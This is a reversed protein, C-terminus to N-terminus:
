GQPSSLRLVVDLKIEVAGQGYLSDDGLKPDDVIRREEIVKSPDADAYRVLRTVGPVLLDRRAFDPMPWEASNWHPIPTAVIPWKGNMLGLDGFMIRLAANEPRLDDFSAEEAARLRPGFFYGLLIRGRPASRAIVGRAFGGGRVPVLFGTGEAYPLKM